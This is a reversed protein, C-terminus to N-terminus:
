VGASEKSGCTEHDELRECVHGWAPQTGEQPKEQCTQNKYLAGGGPLLGEECHGLM